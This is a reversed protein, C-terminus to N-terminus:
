TSASAWFQFEGPADGTDAGVEFTVVVIVKPRIIEAARMLPALIALALGRSAPSVENRFVRLNRAL